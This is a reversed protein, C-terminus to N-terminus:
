PSYVLEVRRMKQRCDPSTCTTMTTASNRRIQRASVGYSRLLKKVTLIRQETIALNYNRSGLNDLYGVLTVVTTPNQKLYEAHRHLKEKGAEDVTTVRLPFYIIKDDSVAAMTKEEPVPAAKDERTPVSHPIAKAAPPAAEQAVREQPQPTM